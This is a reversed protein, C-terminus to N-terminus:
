IKRIKDKRKADYITLKLLFYGFLIGLSDIGADKLCGQRGFVFSQHYEDSFAYLLSLVFALALRKKKNLSKFDLARFWLFFLILYETLHAFKRFIL